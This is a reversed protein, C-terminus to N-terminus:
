LHLLDHYTLLYSPYAQNSHQIVFITPDDPDRPVAPDFGYLSNYRKHKEGPLLPCMKMGEKGQVSQGLLVDVLLM